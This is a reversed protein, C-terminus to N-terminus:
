FSIQFNKPTLEVATQVKSTLLQVELEELGPFYEFLLVELSKLREPQNCEFHYTVKFDSHVGENAHHDDSHTDEHEHHSAKHEDKHEHHHAEHEDGDEHILDGEVHADHLSCQAKSTMAFLKEGNQLVETAEQVARTQEENEPEHEFGVINAAPSMLELMLDNGDLAINLKGIGHLHATHERKEAFASGLQGVFYLALFVLLVFIRQHQCINLKRLVFVDGFM